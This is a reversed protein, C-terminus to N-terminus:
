ERRELVRAYVGVTEGMTREWTFEQARALGKERLDDALNEQILTAIIAGGLQREDGPEVGMAADGVAEALGPATTAVVATGCAMAELPPLGFGEYASPFVFTSAARYVAPKDAEDVYGIWRVLEGLGLKDIYAEYDPFQPPVPSPKRGALVLPYDMGLGQKVYSYALLLRHVNKHLAYGGLYLVFEDPLGYKQQVAMDLLLNDEATYDGGVGLYIPSIREAAVGLLRVIDDRSAGSDTIVHSAGRASASVLAFYLRSAATRRYAPFLLPIVDHITVVLPVASRLPAGWYPVHAIDVGAEQCARPFGWQEFWVKGLEGARVAVRVVRVSPPIGEEVQQASPTGAAVPLVLVVGLDSVYRNLYYVLQRLYQGSGTDSQHWFYGNIGVNMLGSNYGMEM